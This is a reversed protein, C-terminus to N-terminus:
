LKPQQFSLPEGKRLKLKLYVQYYGDGYSDTYTTEVEYKDIDSLPLEEREMLAEKITKINM